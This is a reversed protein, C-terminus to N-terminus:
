NVDDNCNLGMFDIIAREKNVTLAPDSDDKGDAYELGLKGESKALNCTLGHQQRSRMGMDTM